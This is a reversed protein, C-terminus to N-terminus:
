LICRHYGIRSPNNLRVTIFAFRVQIGVAHEDEHSTCVICFVDGAVFPLRYREGCRGYYLPLHEIVLEVCTYEILASVM